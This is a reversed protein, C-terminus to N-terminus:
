EDDDFKRFRKMPLANQRLVDAVAVVTPPPTDRKVPQQPRAVRGTHPCKFLEPKGRKDAMLGIPKHCESCFYNM